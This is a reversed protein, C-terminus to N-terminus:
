FPGVACPALKGNIDTPFSSAGWPFSGKPYLKEVQGNIKESWASREGYGMFAAIAGHLAPISQVWVWVWSKEERAARAPAPAPVFCARLGGRSLSFCGRFSGVWLCAAGWSM